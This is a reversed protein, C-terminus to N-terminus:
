SLEEYSHSSAWSIDAKMADYDVLSDHSIVFQRRGCVGNVRMKATMAIREIRGWVHWISQLLLVKVNSKLNSIKDCSILWKAAACMNVDWDSIQVSRSVLSADSLHELQSAQHEELARTLQELDSLEQRKQGTEELLIRRAKRVLDAVKM